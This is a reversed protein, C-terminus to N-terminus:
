KEVSRIHKKVFDNVIRCYRPTDVMYSMGHAAGPFVHLEHESACAADLARSMECPVFRDDDGHILLVPLNTHAVADLATRGELTFGGWIKAALKVLRVTAAPPFGREAGVKKIIELQDSYPCDAIVGRVQAPMDLESAMLVAAAGMSIGALFIDTGEGFRRSVYYAWDRVDCKEKVGFTITKGESEGHARQDIVLTNLGSERALKNGGCFDRLAHGRYGHCQIMVPAGDRVHYYRAFLRVGDVTSAIEVREFPIADMEQILERTKEYYPAYQEGTFIDYAGKRGKKPSYFTIGYAWRTAGLLAAGFGAAAAAAIKATKVPKM